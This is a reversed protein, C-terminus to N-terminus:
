HLTRIIEKLTEMGKAAGATYIRVADVIDEVSRALRVIEEASFDNGPRAGPCIIIQVWIKTKPNGKHILKVVRQINKRYEEPTAHRSTDKDIQFRQSQILWVDAFPAAKAYDEERSTMFRMGPGVVLPAGYATAAEKAKKVSGVFDDLEARSAHQNQEPNYALYACKINNKRLTSITEKMQELSLFVCAVKIGQQTLHKMESLGSGRAMTDVFDNEGKMALALDGTERGLGFGVGLKKRFAKRYFEWNADGLANLLAMPDHGVDPSATFTHPINLKQLHQSLKLNLGFTSDRTGTAMRICTKGCVAEANQEALIWPSQAKFYELDGGFVTKLIREREEPNATARPGKLELDLPGGALISVAGFLDHYKFGLRAAGYGGMSFGEILRGERAVITRFTADIHPVLEKVIVTEMPVTSDKSDCWMSTAMGNAFVVIMPPTKGARIAADFHAALKSVGPLGGGTGHLWYLVPFRRTKETDYIEPTYIHYSVKTKAAASDFTRFQVCPARVESTVWGEVAAALVAFILLHNM